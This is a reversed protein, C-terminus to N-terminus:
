NLTFKLGMRFVRPSLTELVYDSNTRRVRGNRQLVNAENFANFLEASITMGVTDWRFDKDIRFDVKHVDELRDDTLSAEVPVNVGFPGDNITGRTVREFYIQPYGQRGTLNAALNFGWIRDPAVQYLGNLSYSWESNIISTARPARAPAPARSSRTATRSPPRRVTPAAALAGPLGRTPDENESDPIDWTWDQWSVNGRMM